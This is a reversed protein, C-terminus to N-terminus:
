QEYVTWVFGEEPVEISRAISNRARGEEAARFRHSRGSEVLDSCSQYPPARCAERGDIYLILWLPTDNQLTFQTSVPVEPFETAKDEFDEPGPMEPMRSWGPMAPMEFEPECGPCIDGLTSEYPPAPAYPQQAQSPTACGAAAFLGAALVALAATDRSLKM